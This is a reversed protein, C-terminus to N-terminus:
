ESLIEIEGEVFTINNSKPRNLDVLTNTRDQLDDVDGYYEFAIVSLSNEKVDQEIVQSANLKESELFQNALVRLENLSLLIESNVNNEVQKQYQTELREQLDTIETITTFTTEAAFQYSLSLYSVQTADKILKNNQNREIREETTDPFEDIDDGFNFFRLFIQLSEETTQYLGSSSLIVSQYADALDQPAQILDGINDTFDGLIANFENAPQELKNFTNTTNETFDSFVNLLAEASATNLGTSVNWTSSINTNIAAATNDLAQNIQSLSTTAPQPDTNRNSIDFTLSFRAIGLESMRETVSGPRAVVEFSSFFFPHSLTGPGATELATLLDDKKQQYSRSDITTPGSIEVTLTFSRPRLGLDEIKQRDSNPYEHKVQKRGFDTTAEVVLFRAGRFSGQYLEDQITM